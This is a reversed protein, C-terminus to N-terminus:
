MNPPLAFRRYCRMVCYLSGLSPGGPTCMAWRRGRTPDIERDRGATGYVFPPNAAGVEAFHDMGRVLTASYVRHTWRSRTGLFPDQSAVSM